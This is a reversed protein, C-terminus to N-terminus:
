PWSPSGWSFWGRGSSSLIYMCSTGRALSVLDEATAQMGPLQEKRALPSELRCQATAADPVQTTCREMVHLPAAIGGGCREKAHYFLAHLLQRVCLCRLDDENCDQDTSASFRVPWERIDHTVACRHRTNTPPAAPSFRTDTGARTADLM